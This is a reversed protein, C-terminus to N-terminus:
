GVTEELAHPGAEGQDIWIERFHLCEGPMKVDPDHHIPRGGFLDGCRNPSKAIVGDMAAKVKQECTPGEPADKCATLATSVLMTLALVM